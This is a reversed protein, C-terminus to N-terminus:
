PLDFEGAKVGKVFANWDDASFYVEAEPTRSNRVGIVLSETNVPLSTTLSVQVCHGGDCYSSRKWDSM